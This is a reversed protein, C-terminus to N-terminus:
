GRVVSRMTLMRLHEDHLGGDDNLLAVNTAIALLQLLTNDKAIM